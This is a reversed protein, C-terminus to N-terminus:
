HALTFNFKTPQDLLKFWEVTSKIECAVHFLINYLARTPEDKTKNNPIVRTRSYITRTDNIKLCRNEYWAKYQKIINEYEYTM